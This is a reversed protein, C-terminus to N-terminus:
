CFLLSVFVFNFVDFSFALISLDILDIIYFRYYNRNNNYYLVVFM